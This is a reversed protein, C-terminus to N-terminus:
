IRFIVQILLSCIRYEALDRYFKGSHRCLNGVQVWDANFLWKELNRSLLISGLIFIFHIFIFLRNWRLADMHRWARAVMSDQIGIVHCYPEGSQLRALARLSGQTAAAKAGSM